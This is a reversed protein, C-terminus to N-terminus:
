ITILLEEIGVDTMPFYKTGMFMCHCYQKMFLFANFML